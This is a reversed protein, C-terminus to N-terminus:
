SEFKYKPPCLEVMVNGWLTTLVLQAVAHFSDAVPVPVFYTDGFHLQERDHQFSGGDVLAWAPARM